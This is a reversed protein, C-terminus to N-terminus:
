GDEEENQGSCLVVRSSGEGESEERKGERICLADGREGKEVREGRGDERVPLYNGGLSGMTMSLVHLLFITQIRKPPSSFPTEYSADKTKLPFKRSYITTSSRSYALSLSHLVELIGSIKSRTQNLSGGKSKSKARFKNGPPHVRSM